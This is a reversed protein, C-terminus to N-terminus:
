AGTSFGTVMAQFAARWTHAPDPTDELAGQLELAALGHALAWLQISVQEPDGSGLAGTHAHHSVVERLRELTGLALQQDEDTPEFEPIPCAFMVQYLHPHALASARYALALDCFDSVPEGSLAVAALHGDLAQFGARHMARVLGDKSGFLSYIAQTSAGVERALRRLSLAGPGHEALLRGAAELLAARTADDHIRPRGM